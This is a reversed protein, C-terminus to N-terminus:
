IIDGLIEHEAFLATAGGTHWFVVTSGQPVKGTRVHDILGALAKGSYVPDVLLGESKALMKIAETGGKSPQEYGPCYYNEDINMDESSLIPDLGIWKLADNGIKACHSAFDSEHGMASVSIIKAKSGMAKKGACLGALTGGSGCSHFIYEVDLGRRDAQQSMEAFGGLFGAAGVHSSGGMPVNYCKKGEAEMRKIQEEAMKRSRADAEAETEGENISIIHIEAGFIKDLLLNGRIDNEDPEVVATLYLVPKLGCRCCAEVTQMAHNSQTAGYTFIYEAGQKKADGLLYELKRIKNGGFLSMGTFDDRKIYLDVGLEDSMNDLRYFPTPFFGLATKPKASLLKLIDESTKM